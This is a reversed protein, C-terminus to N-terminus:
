KEGNRSEKGDVIATDIIAKLDHESIYGEAILDSAFVGLMSALQQQTKVLRYDITGEGTHDCFTLTVTAKPFDLIVAM